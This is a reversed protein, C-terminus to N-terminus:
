KIYSIVKRAVEDWTFGKLNYERRKPKDDLVKAMKEVIEDIDPKFWNGIDWPSYKAPVETFQLLPYDIQTAFDREGTNLPSIAPLGCALAELLTMNFAEGSSASIFCDFANYVQGMKEDPYNEFDLIHNPAVLQQYVETNGGYITNIKFYVEFDQRIKYLRRSAEAILDAGKRDGVGQFGGMFGFRFNPHESAGENKFTEPWFGHPVIHLKSEIIGNSVAISKCYNSPIWVQSMRDDNCERVLREPLRTSELAYHGIIQAETNISRWDMMYPRVLIFDDKTLNSLNETGYSVPMYNNIAKGLNRVVSAYGTTGNPSEIIRLM